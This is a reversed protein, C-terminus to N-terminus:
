ELMVDIKKGGWSMISVKTKMQSRGALCELYDKSETLKNYCSYDKSVIAEMGAYMIKGLCRYNYDIRYGIQDTRSSHYLTRIRSLTTYYSRSGIILVKDDKRRKTEHERKQMMEDALILVRLVFIGQKQRKIFEAMFANIKRM